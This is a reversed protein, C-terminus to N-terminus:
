LVTVSGVIDDGDGEAIMKYVGPNTLRVTLVQRAPGEVLGTEVQTGQGTEIVLRRKVGSDANTFLVNCVLAKPVTVQNPTMQNGQVTVRACTSAQDSVTNPRSAEKEEAAVHFTREGVGVAICGATIVAVGLVLLLVAGFGGAHEKSMTSVIAGLLLASGFIIFIIVAADKSTALLVRSFGMVIIGGGVLAYLPTEIPRLVQDRLSQNYVPDASARDSWARVMWEITVAALLFIGALFVFRETVLGIATISLAFGAVLPWGSPSVPNETGYEGEADAASSAGVRAPVSADRYALSVSGLFFSAIAVTLLVIFGFPDWDSNFGYALAGIVGLVSLAYFFRSGTTFM